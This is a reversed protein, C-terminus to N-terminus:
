ARVDLLSGIMADASRLMLVNAKFAYSASIQEVAETNLETGESGPQVQAQAQAQVGAQPPLAQQQVQQRQFGPTQLNAVNHASSALRLQAAQMGSQAISSIASMTRMIRLWSLIYVPSSIPAPTFCSLLGKGRQKM